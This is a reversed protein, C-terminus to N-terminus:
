SLIRELRVKYAQRIHFKALDMAMKEDKKEIASVIQFHENFAEKCRQPKALTSEGLLILSKDLNQMTKLLYNNNSCRFITEHFLINNARLSQVDSLKKQSNVINYLIEIEVKSAFFTALRAAEGELLERMEYLKTISVLDLGSVVLGKKGDQTLIGENLLIGLAERIPTRSLGTELALDQEKIRDKPKLKGEKIANIVYDYIVDSSIRQNKSM